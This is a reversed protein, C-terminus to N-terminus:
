GANAGTPLSTSGMGFDAPYATWSGCSSRIREQAALMNGSRRRQILTIPFKIGGDPNLKAPSFPHTLPTRLLLAAM